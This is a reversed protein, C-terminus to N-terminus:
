HYALRMHELAKKQKNINKEWLRTQIIIHLTGTIVAHIQIHALKRSRASGGNIALRGAPLISFFITHSSVLLSRHRSLHLSRGFSPPPPSPTQGPFCPDVSTHLPKGARVSAQQEARKRRNETRGAHNRDPPHQCRILTLSSLHNRSTRKYCKPAHTLTCASVCM